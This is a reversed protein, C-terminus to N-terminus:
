SNTPQVSDPTLPGAQASNIGRWRFFSLRKDIAECLSRTIPSHAAMSSSSHSTSSTTCASPPSSTVTAPANWSMDQKFKEWSRQKGSTFFISRFIELQQNLPKSRFLLPYVIILWDTMRPGPNAILQLCRMLWSHITSLGEPILSATMLGALGAIKCDATNVSFSPDKCTHKWKEWLQRCPKPSTKSCFKQLWESSPVPQQEDIRPFEFSAFTREALLQARREENLRSSLAQLHGRPL